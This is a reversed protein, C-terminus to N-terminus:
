RLFPSASSFNISRPRAALSSNSLVAAARTLAVAVVVLLEVDAASVVEVALDVVVAVSDEVAVVAVALTTAAKVLLALVPM